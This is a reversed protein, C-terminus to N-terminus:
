PMGTRIRSESLPLAQASWFRVSESLDEGGDAVGDQAALSTLVHGVCIAAGVDAREEVPSRRRDVLLHDLLGLLKAFREFTLCVLSDGRFGSIEKEVHHHAKRRASEREVM